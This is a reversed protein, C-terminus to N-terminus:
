NIPPSIIIAFCLRLFALHSSYTDMEVIIIRRTATSPKALPQWGCTVLWVFLIGVEVGEIVLEDAGDSVATGEVPVVVVDLPDSVVLVEVISVVIFGDVDIVVVFGVVWDVVFGVVSEVVVTVPSVPLYIPKTCCVFGAVAPLEPVIM